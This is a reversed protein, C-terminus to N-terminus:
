RALALVPVVQTGGPIEVIAESDGVDRVFTVEIADELKLKEGRAFTSM